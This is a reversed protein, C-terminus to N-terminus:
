MIFIIIMVCTSENLKKSCSVAFKIWALKGLIQICIITQTKIATTAIPSNMLWYLTKLICSRRIQCLKVVISKSTSYSKPSLLDDKQLM